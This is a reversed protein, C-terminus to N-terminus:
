ECMTIKSKDPKEGFWVVAYKGSVGIGIASWPHKEWIGSNVIVPNHGPSKKWLELGELATADDSSWYAIEFGDGEYGAIERPKDWM